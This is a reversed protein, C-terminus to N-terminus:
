TCRRSQCREDLVPAIYDLARDGIIEVHAAPFQALRQPEQALAVRRQEFPQFRRDHITVIRDECGLEARKRRREIRRPAAERV